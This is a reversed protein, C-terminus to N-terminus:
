LKERMKWGNEELWFGASATQRTAKQSSTVRNAGTSDLRIAGHIGDPQDIPEGGKLERKSSGTVLDM